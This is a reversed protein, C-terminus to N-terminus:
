NTSVEIKETEKYAVCFGYPIIANCSFPAASTLSVEFTQPERGEEEAKKKMQSNLWATIVAKATDIDRTKVIFDYSIPTADDDEGEESTRATIDAEIRYYKTDERTEEGDPTEEGAENGGEVEEVVRRFRDNLIICGPMAKVSDITFVSSFNLEIYDTAVEIASTASQAQLIFSKKKSGIQATVRYPRLTYTKSPKALRRQNSVEVDKIDGCQIHFSISTALEEDIYKGGEFLISNREITMVEGTDKDAFDEYWTKYVRSTLFKGVMRRVDNTRYRIEDKRTEIKEQVEM